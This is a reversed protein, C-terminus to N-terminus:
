EKYIEYKVSTRGIYFPLFNTTQQVEYVKTKTNERISIIKGRCQCNKILIKDTSNHYLWIISSEVEDKGEFLLFGENLEYVTLFTATSYVTDSDYIKVKMKVKNIEKSKSLDALESLLMEAMNYNM